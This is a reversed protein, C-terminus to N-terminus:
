PLLWLAVAATDCITPDGVDQQLEAGTAGAAVSCESFRGWGFLNAQLYVGMVDADIDHFYAPTQSGYIFEREQHRATANAGTASENVAVSRDHYDDSHVSTTCTARREHAAISITAVIRSETTTDDTCAASAAPTFTVVLAAIIAATLISRM